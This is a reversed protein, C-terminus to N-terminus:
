NLVRGTVTLPTGKMGPEALASREPAGAKYFPGEINDETMDCEADLASTWVLAAASVAGMRILERRLIPQEMHGLTDGPTEPRLPHLARRRQAAIPRASMMAQAM